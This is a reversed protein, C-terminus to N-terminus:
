LMHMLELKQKLFGYMLNALERTYRYNKKYPCRVSYSYIYIEVLYVM